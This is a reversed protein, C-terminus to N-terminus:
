SRLSFESRRSSPLPNSAMVFLFGGMRSAIALKRGDSIRSAVLGRVRRPLPVVDVDMGLIQSEVDEFFGRFLDEVQEKHYYRASYGDTWRWLTEDPTYRDRICM